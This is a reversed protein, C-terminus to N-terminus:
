GRIEHGYDGAVRNNPIMGAIIQPPPPQDEHLCGVEFFHRPM